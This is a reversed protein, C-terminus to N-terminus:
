SVEGLERLRNQIRNVTSKSIGLEEAIERVSMKDRTMARVREAQVDRMDRLTWWAGGDRTEMRAEFPAADDGVVGRCKTLHVEFRAGEEVQYDAPRKLQIVTDLVDERKSTGRANEGRGAHHILLVSLGKRRLRLLWEQMANWSEADNERGGNVLTSLNDLVLLEVGDLFNEIAAQDRSSALNMSAGVEQADMPLFRLYEDHVPPVDSACIIANLREQLAEGPMEGDVHLVKRPSPASWRLFKSGAAVAYAIGLGVHTKGVGRQAYLMALGRSPLIPSLVFDRRPFAHNAFERLGFTRFVPITPPASPLKWDLECVPGNRSTPKFMQVIGLRAFDEPHSLPM